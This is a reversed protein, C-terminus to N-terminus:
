RPVLGVNSADNKNACVTKVAAGDKYEFYVNCTSGDSRQVVKKGIDSAAFFESLSTSGDDNWDMEKWSYHQGLSAIVRLACYVALLCGLTAAVGLLISKVRPRVLGM